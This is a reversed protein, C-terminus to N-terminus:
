TSFRSKSTDYYFLNEKRRKNKREFPKQTKKGQSNFKIASM